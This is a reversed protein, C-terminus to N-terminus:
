RVRKALGIATALTRKYKDLINIDLGNENITLGQLPNAIIITIGFQSKLLHAINPLSSSGGTLIIRNYNVKQYQTKYYNLSKRIDNFIDFTGTKILESIEEKKPIESQKQTEQESSDKQDQEKEELVIGIRRKLKEAQNFPINMNKALLQSIDRGGKPIMRTFKLQDGEVLAIETTSSGISLIIDIQNGEENKNEPVLYNEFARMNACPIVDVVKPNIKLKKLINISQQILDKPAAVLLVRMMKNGEVEEMEEIKKADILSNKLDYPIYKPAEWHIGEALEKENMLPTVIERVIVKQGTIAISGNRDYMHKKHLLKHLAVTVAQEDKIVGLAISDPPTLILGFNDLHFGNKRQSIKIAKISREGFDIALM